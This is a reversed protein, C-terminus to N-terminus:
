LRLAEVPNLDSARRAPFYGAILGIVGLISVTAVVVSASMQPTGVYEEFQLLPFLSVVTYSFAFGLFGGVATLLLTELIFQSRVFRKKAGLSMKIGIEKSREEVVVNMINSIGIGGVVLTFAGIIGLFIRFAGFFTNFFTEMESTDWMALAEKDSPDFKYKRGLAEYVGNIMQPTREPQDAQFVMNNLYERGFMTKFTTSPIFTRYTDRGSYSSDQSKRKMVGVILFPVNNISIYEGIPDKEGFLEDALDTGLFVVRRRYQMDEANIFRSGERPIVNRIEHYVPWCGSIGVLKDKKGVRAKANWEMYEPSVSKLYPVTKLLEADEEKFRIVRNRPLGQYAMSTRGGWMIVIYEGLGHVAKQQNLQIGEGFALLLIVAATGWIIGFLTLLTRLKQSRMDRLIQTIFTFSAM